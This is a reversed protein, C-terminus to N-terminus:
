PHPARRPCRPWLTSCHPPHWTPTCGESRGAREEGWGQGRPGRTSRHAYRSVPGLCVTLRAPTLGHGLQWGMQARSPAGSLHGSCRAVPPSQGVSPKRGPTAPLPLSRHGEGAGGNSRMQPGCRASLTGKWISKWVCPLSGKGHWEGLAPPLIPLRPPGTGWFMDAPKGEHSPQPHSALAGHAAISPSLSGKSSVETHARPCGKRSPDAMVPSSPGLSRQTGSCCAAPICPGGEQFFLGKTVQWPGQPLAM